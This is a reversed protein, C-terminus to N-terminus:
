SVIITDFEIRGDQHIILDGASGSLPGIFGLTSYPIRLPFHLDPLRGRLDLKIPRIWSQMDVESELKCHELRGNVNGVFYDGADTKVIFGEDLAERAKESGVNSLVKKGVNLLDYLNM